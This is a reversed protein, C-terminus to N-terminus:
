LPDFALLYELNTPETIKTEVVYSPKLMFATRSLINSGAKRIPEWNGMHGMGCVVMEYMRNQPKM